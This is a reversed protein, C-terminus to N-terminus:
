TINWVRLRIIQYLQLKVRSTATTFIYVMKKLTVCRSIQERYDMRPTPKSSLVSPLQNGLTHKYYFHLTNERPYYYNRGAPINGRKIGKRKCTILKLLLCCYLCYMAQHNASCQEQKSSVKLSPYPSYMRPPFRPEIRAFPSVDGFCKPRNQPVSLRRTLAYRPIKGPPWGVLVHLKGSVEM